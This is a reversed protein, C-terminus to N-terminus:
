HVICVTGWSPMCLVRRGQRQLLTTRLNVALDEHGCSQLAPVLNELTPSTHNPPAWKLWKSLMERFFGPPGEPILPPTHEITALEYDVFGLALGVTRWQPTAPRLIETLIYLDQGTFTITVGGGLTGLCYCCIHQRTVLLQLHYNSSMSSALINLAQFTLSSRHM